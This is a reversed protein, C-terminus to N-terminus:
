APTSDVEQGLTRIWGPPDDVWAIPRTLPQDLRVYEVHESSVWYAWGEDLDFLIHPPTPGPERGANFVWTSGIRDVWSGGEHFPAGHIHGALVLDPSYQAIWAALDSDGFDQTGSWSTPSRDPPAHYVWIWRGTRKVADRALEAAVDERTRPGDWWPCVTVLASGLTCSDGDTAISLQRAQQIWRAYKEGADNSADLDHNGSCIITTARNALRRLYKFVVAIQTPGDVFGAIDLHDGAAVVVDVDSAARLTWDFQRLSYHLDAVLLCKM